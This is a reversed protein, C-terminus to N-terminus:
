MLGGGRTGLGGRTLRRALVTRRARGTREGLGKMLQGRGEAPSTSCDLVGFDSVGLRDASDRAASTLTASLPSGQEATKTYRRQGQGWTTECAESEGAGFVGRDEASLERGLVGSPSAGEADEIAEWLAGSCATGNCSPGITPSATKRGSDTVITKKREDPRSCRYQHAGEPRWIDVAVIKPTPAQLSQRLGRRERPRTRQRLPHLSRSPTATRSQRSRCLTAARLYGFRTARGLEYTM